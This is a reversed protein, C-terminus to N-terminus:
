VAREHLPEQHALAHPPPRQQFVLAGHGGFLRWQRAAPARRRRDIGCRGPQGRWRQIGNGHFVGAVPPAHWDGRSVADGNLPVRLDQWVGPMGKVISEELLCGQNYLLHKECIEFHLQVAKDARVRATVLASSGPPAMRQSIRLMEGWGLVHLGGTLTLVPKGAEQKLRYDGPHQEPDGLLFYNAPFRGMGKGLWWDAPARLMDRGLRWHALRVGLYQEGTSFRDGM